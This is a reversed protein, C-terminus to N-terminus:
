DNSEAHLALVGNIQQIYVYYTTATVSVSDQLIGNEYLHFENNFYKLSIMQGLDNEMTYLETDGENGDSLDVWLTLLSSPETIDLSTNLSSAIIQNTDEIWLKSTEIPASPSLVPSITIPTLQTDNDLWLTTTDLPEDNDSTITTSPNINYDVNTISELWLENTFNSPITFGNDFFVNGSTVDVKENSVYSFNSGEGIIQTVNWNLEIAGLDDNNFGELAIASKPVEYEVSFTIKGTTALLNDQSKVQLEVKYTTDNLLGSFEYIIVDNFTEPSTSIVTDTNDYLIMQWSKIAVLEAQSYSGEVSYSNNLITGGDSLNTILAVPTSSAKFLVWDSTSFEDLQNYTLIQMKYTIGNILTSTPIIHFANFSTIKTTDYAILSTDNNYIKVQYAYQRDGNNKWSVVIQNATDVSINNPSINTAKLIAM